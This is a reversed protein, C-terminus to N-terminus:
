IKLDESRIRTYRRSGRNEEWTVNISQENRRRESREIESSNILTPNYESSNSTLLVLVVSVDKTGSVNCPPQYRNISNSTSKSCVTFMHCLLVVLCYFVLFVRLVGLEGRRRLM